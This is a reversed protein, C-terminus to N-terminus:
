EALKIEADIMIKADPVRGGFNVDPTIGTWKLNYLGEGIKRISIQNQNIDQDQTYFMSTMYDGLEDNYSQPIVLDLDALEDMDGVAFMVELSPLIELEQNAKIIEKSDLCILVEGQNVALSGTLSFEEIGNFREIILKNM